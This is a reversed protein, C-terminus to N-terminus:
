RHRLSGIIRQARTLDLWSFTGGLQLTESPIVFRRRPCYGGMANIPRVTIM